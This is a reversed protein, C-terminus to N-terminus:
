KKLNRYNNFNYNVHKVVPLRKQLSDRSDQISQSEINTMFADLSDEEDEVVYKEKLSNMTNQISELETKLALRKEILSEFTEPKKKQITKQKKTTKDYVLDDDNDSDGFM